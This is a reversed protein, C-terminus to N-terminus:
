KSSRKYAQSSDEDDSVMNEEPTMQYMTMMM